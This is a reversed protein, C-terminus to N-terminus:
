QASQGFLGLPSEASPHVTSFLLLWEGSFEILVFGFLGAM